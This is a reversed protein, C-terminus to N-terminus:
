SAMGANCSLPGPPHLCHSCLAHAAGAQRRRTHVAPAHTAAPPQVGAGHLEALRGGLAACWYAVKWWAALDGPPSGNLASSVDAPVLILTALAAFWALGVDLRVLWGPKGDPPIPTSSSRPSAACPLRRLRGPPGQRRRCYQASVAAALRLCARRCDTPLWCAALLRWLGEGTSRSPLFWAAWATAAGVLPLAVLYFFSPM